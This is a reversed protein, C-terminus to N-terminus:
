IIARMLWALPTAALISVASVAALTGAGLPSARVLALWEAALPTDRAELWAFVRADIHRSQLPTPALATWVDGLANDDM